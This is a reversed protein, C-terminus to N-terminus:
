IFEPVYLKVNEPPFWLIFVDGDAIVLYVYGINFSLEDFIIFGNIHYLNSLLGPINISLPLKFLPLKIFIVLTANIDVVPFKICPNFAATNGM